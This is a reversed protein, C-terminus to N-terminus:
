TTQSSEIQFNFCDFTIMKIYEYETLVPICKRSPSSVAFLHNHFQMRPTTDVLKLRAEKVRRPRSVGRAAPGELGQNRLRHTMNLHLVFLPPHGGRFPEAIKVEKKKWGSHGQAQCQQLAELEATPVDERPSQPSSSNLLAHFLPGSGSKKKAKAKVMNLSVCLNAECPPLTPSTHSSTNSISEDPSFHRVFCYGMHKEARM